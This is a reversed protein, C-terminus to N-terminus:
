RRAEDQQKRQDRAFSSAPAPSTAGPKPAVASAPAAIRGSPLRLGNILTKIGRRTYLLKSAIYMGPATVLNAVNMQSATGSPNPNEAISKALRFFDDLDKIYAPDKFLLKKTEPGLREWSAALSQSRDFKGDVTAKDILDDLYARGIKPLADPAYRAVDRLHNVGADRAFTAQQFTQVPEERMAKLVAAASYKNTTAERGLNRVEVARPGAREAAEQVARELVGVANAALGESMTRLEPLDAGRSIAKIASLDTDVQTLPAYDPGNLINEIAKLGPSSRQQTIPLQRTMREYVPRLADKVSSLDVPAQVVQPPKAAEWWKVGPYVGAGRLYHQIDGEGGSSKMRKAAIERLVENMDANDDLRAAWRPDQRLQMVLDDNALGKETYIRQGKFFGKVNDFESTLRTTKAGAVYNKDFMRLGGLDRIAKLLATDGYEDGEAMSEKLRKASAVKEDFAAKLEAATGKFGHQKADELAGLFIDNMKPNRKDTFAYPAAPDPPDPLDAITTTNAPDAEIDRLEGYARNAEGQYEAVKNAVGERLAAGATEPSSAGTPDAKEAFRRGTSALAASQDRQFQEATSAGGLTDGVRKQLRRVVPRGSATAADIPIGEREGLAVADALKPNPTRGIGPVRAVKAVAKPAAIGGILGTAGGAAGMLDGEAAQEGITAAAPGVIPILGAATHGLTRSAAAAKGGMSPESLVARASAGAKQFQQAHADKLASLILGISDVPHTVMRAPGEIYDKLTTSPLVNRALNAFFGESQPKAPAFDEASAPKRNPDYLEADAFIKQLEAETPPSDGTLKLTRGTRPDAVTYTPM